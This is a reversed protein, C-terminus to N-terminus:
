VVAEHTERRTHANLVEAFTEAISQGGKWWHYREPSTFPIALTGGATLHPMRESEQVVPVSPVGEENDKCMHAHDHTIHDEERAYARPISLLTGLTGSQNESGTEKSVSQSVATGFTGLFGTLADTVSFSPQVATKSTVKVTFPRPSRDGALAFIRKRHEHDKPHVCCGFRGDPYVRLHEGARDGGGEACAPCRAQMVGSALERVKELKGVDLSV